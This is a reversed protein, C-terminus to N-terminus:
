YGREWDLVNELPQGEVYAKLNRCFLDIQRAGRVDTAASVHPTFLVRDDAWLEPDPLREFEGVYVDLGVGRIKGSALATKLAVEDVIEGRALNCLVAGNKMAGLTEEGILKETEPTWQCCVSIFDADPLIDVLKDPRYIADFGNPAEKASRRTGIVRM